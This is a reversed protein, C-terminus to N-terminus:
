EQPCHPHLEQTGGKPPGCGQDEQERIKSLITHHIFVM